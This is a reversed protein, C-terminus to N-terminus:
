KRPKMKLANKREVYGNSKNKDRLKRPTTKGLL